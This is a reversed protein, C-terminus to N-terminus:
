SIEYVVSVSASVQIDGASIETPAAAAGEAVAFDLGYGRYVPSAGVSGESAQVVTVISVGLGEAISEAEELANEGAATLAEKRLQDRVDQTLSFSVGNVVNAGASAAADILDGAKTTDSSTVKLLHTTRYGIISYPQSRYDRIVSVSFTTTEIDGAAVHQLLASRVAQMTNANTQQSTVASPDETEVGIYVEVQNPEASLLSSGTVALTNKDQQYVYQYNQATVGPVAELTDFGGSPLHAPASLAVVAAVVAIAALALLSSIGRM